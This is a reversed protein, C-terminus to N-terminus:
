EGQYHIVARVSHPWTRIDNIVWPVENIHTLRTRTSTCTPSSDMSPDKATAKPDAITGGHNALSHIGLFLDPSGFQVTSPPIPAPNRYFNWIIPILLSSLPQASPSFCRPRSYFDSSARRRCEGCFRRRFFIIQSRLQSRIIPWLVIFPRGNTRKSM